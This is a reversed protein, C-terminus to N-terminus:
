HAHVRTALGCLVRPCLQPAPWVACVVGSHEGSGDESPSAARVAFKTNYRAKQKESLMNWQSGLLEEIEERSADPHEAMVQSCLSPTTLLSHGPCGRAKSQAVSFSSPRSM